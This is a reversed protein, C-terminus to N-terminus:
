DRKSGGNGTYTNNATTPKMEAWGRGEQRKQQPLEPLGEKIDQDCGETGIDHKLAANDPRYSNGKAYDAWGKLDDGAIYKGM